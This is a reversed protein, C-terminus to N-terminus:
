SRNSGTSERQKGLRCTACRTGFEHHPDTAEGQKAKSGPGTLPGGPGLDTSRTRKKGIRQKGNSGTAERAPSYNDPDWIRPASGNSGSGNSGTAGRQKGNSGPGTFLEGYGLDTTRIRQKGIRQKGSIKLRFLITDRHSLRMDHYQYCILRCDCTM